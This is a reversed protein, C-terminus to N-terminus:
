HTSPSVIPTTSAVPVSDINLASTPMTGARAVRARTNQDLRVWSVSPDGMVVLSSHIQALRRKLFSISKMSQLELDLENNRAEIQDLQRQANYTEQALRLNENKRIM